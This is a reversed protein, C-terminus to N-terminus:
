VVQTKGGSYTLQIDQVNPDLQMLRATWLRYTAAFTIHLWPRESPDTLIASAWVNPIYSGWANSMYDEITNLLGECSYEPFSSSANCTAGASLKAVDM